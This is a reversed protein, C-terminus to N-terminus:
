RHFRKGGNQRQGNDRRCKGCLSRMREIHVIQDHHIADAIRRQRRVALQDRELQAFGVVVRVLAPVADPDDRGAAALRHPQGVLRHVCRSWAPRVVAADIEQRGVLVDVLQPADVRFAARRLGRRREREVDVIELERRVALAHQQRDIYEGVAILFYEGAALLPEVIALRVLRGARDVVLQEHPM